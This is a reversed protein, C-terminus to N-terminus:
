AASGAARAATGRLSERLHEIAQTVWAGCPDCMYFMSATGRPVVRPRGEEAHVAEGRIHQVEMAMGRIPRECIDCLVAQM